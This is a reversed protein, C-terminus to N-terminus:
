RHGLAPAPQRGDIAARLLVWLMAANLLHWLAHTGRPRGLMVTWACTKMDVWRLLMAVLFLGAAILLQRGAPHNQSLLGGVLLLTALAPAYSMTGNLCPERAYQTVGVLRTPCTIAAALGSFGLFLVLAVAVWGWRWGLFVRAAYVLYAVMFLGIPLVDALRAWRTATTHFLFSGIGVAGVLAILLTPGLVAPREPSTVERNQRALRVAGLAAVILFGANSAANFPEAWFATDQARECYRFVQEGWSM